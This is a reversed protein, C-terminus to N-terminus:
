LEIASPDQEYQGLDLLDQGPLLVRVMLSVSAEHLQPTIQALDPCPLVPPYVVQPGEVFEQLPLERFRPAFGVGQRGNVLMQGPDRLRLELEHPSDFL